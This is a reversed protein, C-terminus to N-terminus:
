AVEPHPKLKALNAAIRDLYFNPGDPYPENLYHYLSLFDRDLKALVFKEWFLPTQRILEDASKFKAVFQNADKTFDAAEAFEEYLEPLKDIYDDAAMQGLLDATALSFGAIREMENRFPIAALNANVGTCRIMHQVAQTDPLIFGKETLLEGAFDASRGVHTVTYKAGTGETDDRKKLDGTDHLLIAVVGLEFERRTLQPHACARQRARLLRAMCLTGQLTHELDHYIADIAQYDHYHGTFAEIVWGFAQPVFVRDGEPFTDLYAGQVAVEVATPDKTDVPSYM